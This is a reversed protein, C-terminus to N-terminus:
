KFQEDEIRKVEKIWNSVIQKFVEEAKGPKPTIIKMVQNEKNRIIIKEHLYIENDLEIVSVKLPDVM